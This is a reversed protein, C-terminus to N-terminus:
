FANSCLYKYQEKKKNKANKLTTSWFEEPTEHKVNPDKYQAKPPRPPNDDGTYPEDLLEQPPEKAKAKAKARKVPLSKLDKIQPANKIEIAPIPIEEPKEDKNREACYRGHAYKLNKASMSKGCAQCSVQEMVKTTTPMDLIKNSKSKPKPTPPEIADDETPAEPQEPQETQEPEEPQEPQEIQEPEENSYVETVKINRVM